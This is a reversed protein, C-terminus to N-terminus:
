PVLRESAEVYGELTGIGEVTVELKDGVEMPGVGDPTGTLVLDGPELTLFSSIYSLVRPVSFILDRTNGDQKLEGNLRTQVSLASVDLDTELWPGVPCFGDASKGRAWQLDSRQKDRATVDVACTYGLVYSLADSESVDRMTRAIVVALEGEFHLNNTWSPYPIPDGPDALTGLAKIFLGPEKPLDEASGGMEVVHKAYNKGVCVINKPECPALLTVESIQTSVGSREGMLGSLPYVTGGELEGWQVGSNDRYRIRKM